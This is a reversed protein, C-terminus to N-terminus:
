PSNEEHSKDMLLHQVIRNKVLHEDIIADIDERNKYTYWVGEPYIVITPGQLCHGLCGASNVRVKGKGALDLAAIREKAYLRMAAADADGCCKKGNTRQNVCFFVHKNYYGM